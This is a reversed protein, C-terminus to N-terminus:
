CRRSDLMGASSCRRRPTTPLPPPRRQVASSNWHTTDGGLCIANYAATGLLNVLQYVNGVQHLLAEARAVRERLEELNSALPAKVHVAEAIEWEEGSVTAWHLAEDALAEALDTRGAAAERWSRTALAHAVLTPIALTRAIAEAEAAVASADRM